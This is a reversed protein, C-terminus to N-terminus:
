FGAQAMILANVQDAAEFHPMHGAGDIWVVRFTGPLAGEDPAGVIKDNHSAVVLASGIRPLDAALARADDGAVLRDRLAALAEEVGDTRKYKIMDEVMDKSVLAPDAFLDELWPKMSRAKDAEAVGTLFPESIEGGPMHSPSVLTLSAVREPHDAALRALTAAGMSHGILHAKDVGLAQMVGAVSRALFDLSADGVDKASGGHGPLDLVIVRGKELLAPLTLAWGNLDGAYGHVLLFPAGDGAGAQGVRLSRGDVEVMSLALGGGEDEEEPVFSAQFETVFADIEADAVDATAVVGILAGIPVTEGSQVVVRRLVGESPAECVNTIKATEIDVLDEGESVAEGESKYWFVITGEQMSLGWKPMRVPTVASM